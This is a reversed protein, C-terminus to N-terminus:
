SKQGVICLTGAWGEKADLRSASVKEFGANKFMQIWEKESFLRMLNIGCKEPWNHSVTNEEYFDIGMVLRGKPALWKDNIKALLEEAKELYYFVEMSHIVDYTKSPSWTTLDDRYYRNLPDIEKAKEIMRASGDVGESLLCGEMSKVLRVVWGNGCGADLFSFPAEPLSLELMQLVASRHGNAMGEDKGIEAWRNFVEIPSQKM